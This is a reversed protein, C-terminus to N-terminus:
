WLRLGDGDPDRGTKSDHEDRGAMIKLMIAADGVSRAMPGLTDQAPSIPVVADRSVLGTTPKLCFGIDVAVGSGSSSGFPDQREHYTGYTQGGRASWGNDSPRTRSSAWGSCNTTGLLVCGAERLRTVAANERAPKAGLLALSGATAELAPESTVINDKVLLPVGHLPRLRRHEPDAMEADLARAIALTNPNVQLVARLAGNFRAIQDLHTQVLQVVTFTGSNLGHAIAAM